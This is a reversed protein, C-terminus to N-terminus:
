VAALAARQELVDWAGTDYQSVIQRHEDTIEHADAECHLCRHHGHYRTHWRDVIRTGVAWDTLAAEIATDFDAFFQRDLWEAHEAQAADWAEDLHRQETPTRTTATDAYANAFSTLSGAGVQIHAAVDEEVPRVVPLHVTTAEQALMQQHWTGLEQRETLAAREDALFLSYATEDAADRRRKRADAVIAAVTALVVITAFLAFGAWPGSIEFM